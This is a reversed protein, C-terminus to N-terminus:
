QEQRENRKLNSSVNQGSEKLRKSLSKDEKAEERSKIKKKEGETNNNRETRPMSPHKNQLQDAVVVVADKNAWNIKKQVVHVALLFTM